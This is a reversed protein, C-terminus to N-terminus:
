PLPLSPVSRWVCSTTPCPPAVRAVGRRVVPAGRCEFHLPGTRTPSRAVELNDLEAEGKVNYKEGLEAKHLVFLVAAAINRAHIYFRSGARLSGDYAHITLKEGPPSPPPPPSM